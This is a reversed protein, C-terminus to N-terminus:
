DTDTDRKWDILLRLSKMIQAVDYTYNKKRDSDKTSIDTETQEDRVVNVVDFWM